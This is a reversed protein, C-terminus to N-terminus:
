GGGWALCRTHANRPAPLAYGLVDAWVQCASRVGEQRGQKKLPGIANRPAAAGLLRQTMGWIPYTTQFAGRGKEASM